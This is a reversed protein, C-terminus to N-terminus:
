LFLLNGAAPAAPATFRGEGARFVFAGCIHICARAHSAHLVCVCMCSCLLVRTRGRLCIVVTSSCRVMIERTCVVEPCKATQIVLCFFFCSSSRVIDYCGFYYVADFRALVMVVMVAAVVERM